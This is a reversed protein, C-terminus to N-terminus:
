YEQDVMYYIIIFQDSELNSQPYFVIKKDWKHFINGYWVFIMM